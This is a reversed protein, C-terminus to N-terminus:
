YDREGPDARRNGELLQALGRQDGRLADLVRLADDLTLDRRFDTLSNALDPANQDTSSGPPLSAGPGATQGPQPSGSANPGASSRGDGGQGGNPQGSPAGSGSPQQSADPRPKPALMETVLELNFKADRDSPDLRLAERYADRADELRGLRFLANGRDYQAIARVEPSGTDIARAYEPLADGVQLLRYLSNGANVALEAAGPMEHELQRYIALAGAYDGIGFQRNGAENTVGLDGCAVGWLLSSGIALGLIRRRSRRPAPTAPARRPAPLGRRDSLFREVLVAGVAIAVFLQAREDPVSTPDQVAAVVELSRLTTGIEGVVGDDTYHWYRGGGAAALSRLVDEDLRSVVNRDDPGVLYGTFLGDTSSYTPIPGGEATGVGVTYLTVGRETMNALDPQSGLTIEGDSVLVIVRKRQADAADSFGGLAADIGARLSSGQNLRVGAGSNDLVDGLIRPDTTAPYRVTGNGAFLVLSMRSGVMETGLAEAFRRAVRLRDPTVDRVAMSQSVDVALVIDVGLRRASRTRMDVFPDALAIVLAVVAVLLLGAKLWWRAGSRSAIAVSGAFARTAAERARASRWFLAALLPVIALLWLLEPRLIGLATM